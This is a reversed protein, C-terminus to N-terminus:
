SRDPRKRPRVPVHPIGTEAAFRAIDDGSILGLDALQAYAMAPYDDYVSALNMDSPAVGAERWLDPAVGRIGTRLGDGDQHDSNVSQRIALIRVPVAAAGQRPAASVILSSAGAVVPVCDFRRLPDAVLALLVLRVVEPLHGVGTGAPRAALDEVVVARADFAPRRPRRAGVAVAVDLDPVQDEHLETPFFDAVRELHM